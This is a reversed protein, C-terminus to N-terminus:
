GRDAHRKDRQTRQYEDALIRAKEVDFVIRRGIQSVIADELIGQKKLTYITSQCCGIKEALESVGHAYSHSVPMPTQHDSTRLENLQLFEEGTM